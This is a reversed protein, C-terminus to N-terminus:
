KLPFSEELYWQSETGTCNYIDIRECLITKPIRNALKLQLELQKSESLSGYFLSIHPIFEEGKIVGCKDKLINQLSILNANIETTIFLNKYYNETYEIGQLKISFKSREESIKKCVDRISVLELGIDSLLTIHPPFLATRFQNSLKSVLKMFGDIECQMPRLWLAYKSHQQNM